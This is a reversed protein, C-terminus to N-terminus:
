NVDVQLIRDPTAEYLGPIVLWLNQRCKFLHLPRLEGSYVEVGDGQWQGLSGWKERACSPCLDGPQGKSAHYSPSDKNLSIPTPLRGNEAFVCPVGGLQEPLVGSCILVDPYVQGDAALFLARAGHTQYSMM